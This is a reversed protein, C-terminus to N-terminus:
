AVTIYKAEYMAMPFLIIMVVIVVAEHTQDRTVLRTTMLAHYSHHPLADTTRCILINMSTGYLPGNEHKMTNTTLGANM